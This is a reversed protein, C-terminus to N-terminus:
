LFRSRKSRNCFRVQYSKPSFDTWKLFCLQAIKLEKSITIIELLIDASNTKIEASTNNFIIVIKFSSLIACSHELFLCVKAEIINQQVTM